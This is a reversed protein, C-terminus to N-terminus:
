TLNLPIDPLIHAIGCTYIVNLLKGYFCANCSALKIFCLNTTNAMLEYVLNSNKEKEKKAKM